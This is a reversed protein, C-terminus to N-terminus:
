RRGRLRSQGIEYIARLEERTAIRRQYGAHSPPVFDRPPPGLTIQGRIIPSRPRVSQAWDITDGRVSASLGPLSFYSRPSQRSTDRDIVAYWSDIEHGHYRGAALDAYSVVANLYVAKRYGDSRPFLTRNLPMPRTVVRKFRNVGLPSPFSGEHIRTFFTQYSWRIDCDAVRMGRVGGYPFQYFDSHTREDGPVHWGYHGVPVRIKQLMTGSWQAFNRRTGDVKTGTRIFDGWASDAARFDINALFSFPAGGSWEDRNDFSIQFVEGGRIPRRNGQAPRFAHGVKAFSAGIMVVARYRLFRARVFGTIPEDPAVLLLLQSPLGPDEVTIGEPPVRVIVIDRDRAPVWHLPWEYDYCPHRIEAAEAPGTSASSLVMGAGFGLLSRRTILLSM